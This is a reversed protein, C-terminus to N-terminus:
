EGYWYDESDWYGNNDGEANEQESEFGCAERCEERENLCTRIDQLGHEDRCEQYELGCRSKCLSEGIDQLQLKQTDTRAAENVAEKKEVKYEAKVSLPAGAIWFLFTVIFFIKM